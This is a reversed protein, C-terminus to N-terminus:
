ILRYVDPLNYFVGVFPPVVACIFLFVVCIASNTVNGYSNWLFYYYNLMGCIAILLITEFLFSITGNYFLYNSIKQKYRDLSEARSVKILLLVILMVVPVGIM